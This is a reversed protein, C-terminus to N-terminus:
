KSLTKCNGDEGWPNVARYHIIEGRDPTLASTELDIILDRKIGRTGAQFLEMGGIEYLDYLSERLKKQSDTPLARM